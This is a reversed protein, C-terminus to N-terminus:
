RREWSQLADCIRAAEENTLFPFCPLTVLRNTNRRSVDLGSPGIRYPGAKWAAQDPDLVPYHIDTAIGREALFVRLADREDCLAAALHVVSGGRCQVFRVRAGTVERYRTLLEKRRENGEDLMPLLVGLAAAQIEDMRSNRGGPLTNFYKKSWGYQHLQSCIGFLSEDSTVIAGADGLAGLNKTPYFSFAAINGLSGVRDHGLHAGHAQACDELIPVHSFGARDVNRRLEGIDIVGGYLHTAVIARTQESLALVVGQLDVLQSAEDVDVYVPTLGVQRCAATTYGGANAVTIIEGADQNKSILLARLAIELADTGNGVPLCFEVGCFKKFAQSFQDVRPGNLWQGSQATAILAENLELRHAAYVRSTDNFPIPARMISAIQSWQQMAISASLPLANM